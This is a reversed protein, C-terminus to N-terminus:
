RGWLPRSLGHRQRQSSFSPATHGRDRDCPPAAAGGRTIGTLVTMRACLTARIHYTPNHGLWSSVCRAQM